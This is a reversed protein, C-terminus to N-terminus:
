FPEGANLSARHAELATSRLSAEPTLVGSLLDITGPPDLKLDFLEPIGEFAYSLMFREDRTSQGRWDRLVGLGNPRFVETYTFPRLSPIGPDSFYPTFSVSDHVLDPPPETGGLELVTSFLDTLNVLGDTVGTAIGPGSAIMPVWVGGQLVSTKCNIEDFPPTAVSCETGNDGVFIIVTNELVQSGVSAFLRGLETDLAEVMARFCPRGGEGKGPACDPRTHLEAPPAQYPEHPAHYPLYLFWPTGIAEAEDIWSIAWDTIVTTAYGEITQFQNEYYATFSYYDDPAVELNTPTGEWSQYGRSFPDDPLNADVALHWKGVVGTQYGATTLISPLFTENQAPVGDNNNRGMAVGVGTRFSYRGTQITTRTPSCVPNSWASRFRLGSAALADINPTPPPDEGVGYLGIQEVGLDDALILLVNPAEGAGAARGSGALTLLLVGAIALRIPRARHTRLMM